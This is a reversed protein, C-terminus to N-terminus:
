SVRRRWATTALGLLGVGLLTLTGPEPVSALQGFQLHDMEIAGGGNDSVRMSLIGGTNVFGFFRDEATTGSFSGDGLDNASVTELLVNGPGFSQVTVDASVGGDTWVIGVVTPLTGAFTFTIGVAASAFFYSRANTGSGDIAGDDADVSDTFGGPGLVTGTGVVTTGGVTANLLGDEFNEVVVTGANIQALFPSDNTELYPLPGLPVAGAFGPLGMGLLAMGFVIIKMGHM